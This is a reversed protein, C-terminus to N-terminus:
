KSIFLLLLLEIYYSNRYNELRGGLKKPEGPMEKARIRHTLALIILHITGSCIKSKSTFFGGIFYISTRLFCVRYLCVM